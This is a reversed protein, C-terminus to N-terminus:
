LGSPDFKRNVGFWKLTREGLGPAEVHILYIGSAIPIGKNNKLDWDLDPLIQASPVANGKPAGPQEDRNYRRIFKGDLSYITVTCEAPLNTIKVVQSLRSDEYESYAYYPNPVVNIMDLASEIGVEDLPTAEKDSFSFRYTPYGNFDGTGVEVGYPNDVRLKYTVENPILGEAYSLMETGTAMMPIGAWTVRKLANVKQLPSKRPHLREYHYACSDYDETTVYVFHHGGAYYYLPSTVNMETTTNLEIQSNPNFMMDDGNPVGNNYANLYGTKESYASNEGFFINKRKGTEVDIAYGPFWGMGIIPADSDPEEFAPFDKELLGDPMPLGDPGAEKGVSRRAKIDFAIIEEEDGDFDVFIGPEGDTPPFDSPRYITEGEQTTVTGVGGQGAFPELNRYDNPMTEVIVCRSWLSKDNTFVIDINNLDNLLDEDGVVLGGQADGGYNRWAPTIYFPAGGTGPDDVRCVNYPVFYGPAINGLIQHERNEWEERYQVYDFLFFSFPNDETTLGTPVGSLWFPRDTDGYIIEAGIAGDTEDAWDGVDDTQGITVTFGYEGLIQENLAEITKESMVVNGDALSTLTWGVENDLKDNDMNEDVFTLEYEGDKIELPNFVAVNIPSRGDVYTISGDFSGDLIAARTDSSIDVFNGGVGVGDLRTVSAGDGYSANLNVDVIPRPIPAYPTGAGDRGINLRGELYTTGQGTINFPDFQEFNNDAYAIAFFYYKRHNILRSDGSAFQDTTIRFTHRVGEDLGEVQEVPFFIDKPASPDVEAAPNPVSEWNYLTGVGDQIDVQYILRAKEPNRLDAPGVTPDATQYLLYGQFNYTTDEAEAPFGIGAEEYEENFNNSSEPNTFVAILEQDLEIWDVDPADPGDVIDFCEDFLDQAIDDAIKLRSIDPCPYLLDPVWVAGVILENVAGRQLLFPGSAQVTRRDYEPLGTPFDPGPACMSWVDPGTADPDDIFAYAIEPSTGGPDYADGGFTFPTGDKWTGSLYNYFEAANDPDTTNIDPSNVGQNNIYTFATMGLENRNEDLPGRFYDVGIIPVEDGYTGVTTCFQSGDIADANYTYALSRSTDCGIYDDSYCGLDADVWMAFYTSDLDTLARNNLRYRQFTMDNIQDNTSYAFAQVQVEMRIADGNTEGHIAGGGEDNYIWYIMEDPFQPEEDCGRIIIAPFDGDLPDYIGDESRDFFNKYGFFVKPLDFGLADFFYPSNDGPWERLSRPILDETYNIEGRQSAEYLERSDLIDQRDVVFFRDWDDCIAKDTTGEDARLPGSWFDTQGNPHGYQQCAVKLVETGAEFGGLWVAGAFISSVEIQGPEVAPVVYKGDSGDWWVDGGTTLRARVNNVAQDIQAGTPICAERFNIQEDTPKVPKKEPNYYAMASGVFCVGFFIALLSKLSRM